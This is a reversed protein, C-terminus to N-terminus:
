YPAESWVGSGSRWADATQWRISAFQQEERLWRDLRFTLGMSGEREISSHRLLWRGSEPEGPGVWIDRGEGDGWGYTFGLENSRQVVETMTRKPGDMEALSRGTAEQWFAELRADGADLSARLDHIITQATVEPPALFTVYNRFIRGVGAPTPQDCVESEGLEALRRLINPDSGGYRICRLDAAYVMEIMRIIEAPTGPQRKLFCEGNEDSGFLEPENAYPVGCALCCGSEIYFQRSRPPPQTM